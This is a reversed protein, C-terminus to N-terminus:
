DLTYAERALTFGAAGATDRCSIGTSKSSCLISGLQIAQGYELVALETGDVGETAGIGDATWWGGLDRSAQGRITESTCTWAASQGELVTIADASQATCDGLAQESLDEPAPAVSKRAIQCVASGARLVCQINGSPMIFSAQDGSILITGDSAVEASRQEAEPATTSDATDAEPRESSAVPDETAVVAGDDIAEEISPSTNTDGNSCASIGLITLTLASGVHAAIPRIYHRSM